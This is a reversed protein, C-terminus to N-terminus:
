SKSNKLTLYYILFGVALFISEVGYPVLSETASYPLFEITILGMGGMFFVIAWKLVQSVSLQEMLKVAHEDLQDADLIRKKLSYNLLSVITTSVIGLALVLAIYPLFHKMLCRLNYLIIRNELTSM